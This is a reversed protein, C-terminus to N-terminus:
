TSAISRLSRNKLYPSIVSFLKSLRKTSLVIRRIILADTPNLINVLLEDLLNKLNRHPVIAQNKFYDLKKSAPQKLFEEAFPRELTM